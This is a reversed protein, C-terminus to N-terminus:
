DSPSLRQAVRRAVSRAGEDRWLRLLRNARRFLVWRDPPPQERDATATSTTSPKRPPAWDPYDFITGFRPEVLPWSRLEDRASEPNTEHKCFPTVRALQEAIEPHAAAGDSRAWTLLNDIHGLDLPDPFHRQLAFSDRWASMVTSPLCTSDPGDQKVGFFYTGAATNAASEETFGRDFDILEESLVSALLQAFRAGDDSTSSQFDRLYTALVMTLAQSPMQYPAVGTRLERFSSFVQQMGQVSANFYHHPFGHYAFVFNCEHYLYGGDRLVDYMQMAALFPNRLHEVVALSFVFGVSGSLFPLAHADAIVDVYPSREVDVRIIAPDDLAQNGSGLEVVVQDDLLSQLVVRHIWPFYGRATVLEHEHRVVPLKGGAVMVPVGDIIPYTEACRPCHLQDQDREPKVKCQPCALVDYLSAM